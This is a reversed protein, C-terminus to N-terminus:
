ADDEDLEEGVADKWAADHEKEKEIEEATKSKRPRLTRTPAVAPQSPKARTRPKKAVPAVEGDMEAEDPTEHDDDDKKPRKRKTGTRKPTTAKKAKAKAKGKATRAPAKGKGKSTEPPKVFSPDDGWEEVDDQVNTRGNAADDNREEALEAMTKPVFTHQTPVSAVGHLPEVDLDMTEMEYTIREEEEERDFPLTSPGAVPMSKEEQVHQYKPLTYKFVVDDAGAM